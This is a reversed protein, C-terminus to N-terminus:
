QFREIISLYIKGDSETFSIDLWDRSYSSHEVYKILYGIVKDMYKVEEISIDRQSATKRMFSMAEDLRGTTIRVQSATPVVLINTEPSKLFVVRMREGHGSSYLYTTFSIREISDTNKVPRMSISQACGIFLALSLCFAAKFLTM